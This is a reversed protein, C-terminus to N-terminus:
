GHMRYTRDFTRALPLHTALSLSAKHLDAYASPEAPVTGVDPAFHECLADVLTSALFMAKSSPDRISQELLTELEEHHPPPGTDIQLSAPNSWNGAPDITAHTPDVKSTPCLPRPAARVRTAISIDRHAPSACEETGIGQPLQMGVAAHQMTYLLFLVWVPHRSYLPIALRTGLRLLSMCLVGLGAGVQSLIRTPVLASHLWLLTARWFVLQRLYFPFLAIIGKLVFPSWTGGITKDLVLPTHTTPREQLRDRHSGGTGADRSASSSSETTAQTDGGHYLDPTEQANPLLEQSGRAAEPVRRLRFEVRIVDGFEVIRYHNAAGPSHTGGVITMCYGTPCHASLIEHLFTIEVRGEPARMVRIPLLVPRLDLVYLVDEPRPHDEPVVAIVVNDSFRGWRAHDVIPPYAPYIFLAEPDLSLAEAVVQLSTRGSPLAAFAHQDETDTVLWTGGPWQGPPQEPQFWGYTWQLTDVLAWGPVYRDPRAVTLLDGAELRIEGREPVPWPLDRHFVRFGFGPSVGALILADDPTIVPPLFAAFTRPADGSSQILVPVRVSPWEPVAILCVFVPEPQPHVVCLQTFCPLDGGSRHTQVLDLFAEVTIPLPTPVTVEAPYFDPAFLYCTIDTTPEAEEDDVLLGGPDTAQSPQGESDPPDSPPTEENYDHHDEPVPFPRDTTDPFVQPHDEYTALIVHGPNLYVCGSRQPIVDIHVHWGAPASDNLVVSLEHVDLVGEYLTLALWGERIHRCDVLACHWYRQVVPTPQAGVAIIACCHVGNLAVDPQRPVAAFLQMHAPDVDVAEGIIDRYRWPEGHSASVLVVRGHHVLIHAPGFRSEPWEPTEDWGDLFQLLQGLTYSAIPERHGPRFSILMGSFIHIPEENELLFQDPGVWVGLGPFSSVGALQLLEHRAVYDPVQAAFLRGDIHVTDFCVDHSDPLWSPSALYCAAGIGPQPSVPVLWPFRQKISPCRAAQTIDEAENPTAPLAIGITLLEPVYGVKLVACGIYQLQEEATAVPHPGPEDQIMAAPLFANRQALWTGGLRETVIRLDHLHQAELPSNGVPETLFKNVVCGSPAHLRCVVPCADGVVFNVRAFTHEIGALCVQIIHKHRARACDLLTEYKQVGNLPHPESPPTITTLALHAGPPPPPGRRPSRSRRGEAVEEKNSSDPSQLISDGRSSDDDQGSSDSEEEDFSNGDQETESHGATPLDEVYTLTLVEGHAVKVLTRDGRHERRGGTLSLSHGFPVNDQHNNLLRDVDLIGLTALAWTFDKLIPRRDIFVIHKMLLPRGPPIPIRSIAETVVVTALCTRGLHACDLVRPVSPCATVKTVDFLFAEAAKQKFKTSTDENDLDIALVRQGGEHMMLFDISQSPHLFPDSPSWYRGSSLMQRLTGGPTYQGGAPLITLLSGTPFEYLVEDVLETDDYCVRLDSPIPHGLQLLISSKKIRGVIHYAFIGASVSRADILCVGPAAWVPTALVCAFAATPQPTVPTLCPFCVSTASDRVDAVQHIAEDVSSDSPMLIHYVEHKYRPAFVLFVTEILNILGAQEELEVDDPELRLADQANPSTLPQGYRRPAPPGDATPPAGPASNAGEAPDFTPVPCSSTPPSGDFAEQWGVAFVKHALEVTSGIRLVQVNDKVFNSLLEGCRGEPFEVDAAQLIQPLDPFSETATVLRPIIGIPRMDLFYVVSGENKPLVLATQPCPEGKLDLPPDNEVITVAAQEATLKSVQLAIDQKFFRPFFALVVPDLSLGCAVALCHASSPRPMHEIKDWKNGSGLLDAAYFAAPPIPRDAIPRCVTVLTGHSVSIIGAHSAPLSADGIWVQVAESEIDVNMYQGIECWLDELRSDIPLTAAYCTGGVRSIDIVVACHPRRGQSIISPFSLVSLSGPFVQPHVAVLADHQPCPLRGSTKILRCVHEFSAGPAVRLAFATTPFYPAYIAVGLWDGRFRDQLDYTDPLPETYGEQITPGGVGLPDPQVDSPIQSTAGCSVQWAAQLVPKVESPVAWVCTPASTVGFVALLIRVWLGSYPCSRSKLCRHKTHPRRKLDIRWSLVPLAPSAVALATLCHTPALKSASGTLRGFPSARGPLPKNWAGLLAAFVLLLLSRFYAECLWGFAWVFALIIQGRSYAHYEHQSIMCSHVDLWHPPGQLVLCPPNLGFPFPDPQPIVRSHVDLLCLYGFVSPDLPGLGKSHPALFADVASSRRQCHADGHCLKHVPRSGYISACQAWRPSIGSHGTTPPFSAQVGSRGIYMNRAREGTGALIGAPNCLLTCVLVSDCQTRSSILTTPPQM